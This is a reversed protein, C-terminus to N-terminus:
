NVKNLKSATRGELFAHQMRIIIPKLSIFNDTPNVEGSSFFSEKEMALHNNGGTLWSQLPPDKVQTGNLYRCTLFVFVYFISELDHRYLHRPPPSKKLLEIAMFPKTGTRQNSAPEMTGPTVSSALDFDNLVGCLEGDVSRYMLNGLSIDRHLIKAETYLWHHGLIM